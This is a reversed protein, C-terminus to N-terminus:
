SKNFVRKLSRPEPAPTLTECCVQDIAALFVALQTGNAYRYCQYHPGSPKQSSVGLSFMIIAVKARSRPAKELDAPPGSPEKTPSGDEKEEAKEAAVEAQGSSTASSSSAAKDEIKAVSGAGIEESEKRSGGPEASSM